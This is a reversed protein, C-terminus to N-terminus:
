RPQNTSANSVKSLIPYVVDKITSDSDVQILLIQLMCIFLINLREILVCTITPACAYLFPSSFFPLPSIISRSYSHVFSYLTSLLCLLFLLPTHTFLNPFVTHYAYLIYTDSSFTICHLLFYLHHSVLLLLKHTKTICM